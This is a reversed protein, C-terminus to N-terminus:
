NSFIKNNLMFAPTWGDFGIKGENLNRCIKKANDGKDINYIYQETAVERILWTRNAAREVIYNHTM